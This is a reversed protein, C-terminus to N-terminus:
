KRLFGNRSLYIDWFYTDFKPSFMLSQMVDYAPCDIIATEYQFRWVSKRNVYCSACSNEDCKILLRGLDKTPQRPNAHYRSRLQASSRCTSNRIDLSAAPSNGGVVASLENRQRCRRRRRRAVERLFTFALNTDELTGSCSRSFSLSLSLSPPPPLSFTGRVEKGERNATELEWHYSAARSRASVPKEICTERSHFAIASSDARERNISTIAETAPYNNQNFQTSDIKV